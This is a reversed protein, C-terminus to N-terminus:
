NAFVNVQRRRRGAYALMLGLVGFLGWAPAQLIKAPGLDWVLSHTNRQVSGRAAALTVPALNSWHEYTSIAVARNAALSRTVDNVAAIVAVILFVGALLRLLGKM